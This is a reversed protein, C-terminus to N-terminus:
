VWDYLDPKRMSRNNNISACTVCPRMTQSACTRALYKELLSWFLDTVPQSPFNDAGAWGRCM